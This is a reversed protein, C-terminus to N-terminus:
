NRDMLKAHDINSNKNTIIELLNGELELEESERFTLLNDYLTVPLTKNM